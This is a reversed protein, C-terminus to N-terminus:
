QGFQLKTNSGGLDIEQITDQGDKNTSEVATNDFKKDSQGVTVPVKFSKGGENTFVAETGSVKVEYEGPKLETSGAKTPNTLIFSYSKAGAIGITSLTLAGVILLSRATM